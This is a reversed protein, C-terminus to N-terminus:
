VKEYGNIGAGEMMEHLIKDKEESTEAAGLEMMCSECANIIGDEIEFGIVAPKGCRSCKVKKFQSKKMVM